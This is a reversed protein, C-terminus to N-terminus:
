LRSMEISTRPKMEELTVRDLETGECDECGCGDLEHCLCCVVEHATSHGDKELQCCTLIDIPITVLSFIDVFVNAIPRFLLINCLCCCGKCPFNKNVVRHMHNTIAMVPRPFKSSLFLLGPPFQRSAGPGGM